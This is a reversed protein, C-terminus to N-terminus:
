ADKRQNLQPFFAEIPLIPDETAITFYNPIRRSNSSVTKFMGPKNYDKSAALTLDSVRKSHEFLHELHDQHKKDAIKMISSESRSRESTIDNKEYVTTETVSDQVSEGVESDKIKKRLPRRSSYVPTSSTTEITDELPPPRPRRQGNRIRPSIKVTTAEINETTTQRQRSPKFSHINKEIQENNETTSGIKHRPEKPTFKKRETTTENEIDSYPLRRQPLRVKPTNQTTKETTSTTSNLRSRYDKVNFKTRNFKNRLRPRQSREPTTTELRPTTTYETNEDKYLDTTMEKYFKTVSEFKAEIPKFDKHFSFDQESAITTRLTDSLSLAIDSTPTDKEDQKHTYDNKIDNTFKQLYPRNAIRMIPSEDHLEEQANPQTTTELRATVTTVPRRHALKKKVITPITPSVTPLASTTLDTTVTPTTLDQQYKTPRVRPGITYMEEVETIPIAETTSFTTSTFRTTTEPKTRNVNALQPRRRRIKNRKRVKDKENIIPLAPRRFHQDPPLTPLAEVEEVNNDKNSNFATTTAQTSSYKPAETPKKTRRSTSYNEYNPTSFKYYYDKLNHKGIPEFDDGLPRRSQSEIESDYSLSNDHSKEAETVIAFEEPLEPAPTIGPRGFTELFEDQKVSGETAKPYNYDYSNSTVSWPAPTAQTIYEPETTEVVEYSPRYSSQVNVLPTKTPTFQQNGAVLNDHIKHKKKEYNFNYNQQDQHHPVQYQAFSYDYYNNALTTSQVTPNYTTVKNFDSQLNKNNFPDQLSPQFGKINANPDIKPPVYLKTQQTPRINFDSYTSGFHIQNATTPGRPTSADLITPTTKYQPKYNFSNFLTQKTSQIPAFTTPFQHGPDRGKLSQIGFTGFSGLITPPLLADQYSYQSYPNGFNPLAQQQVTKVQQNVSQPAADNDLKFVEPKFTEITSAQPRKVENQRVFNDIPKGFVDLPKGTQYQGFQIPQINTLQQLMANQLYNNQKVKNPYKSFVPRDIYPNHPNRVLVSQAPFNQIFKFNHFGNNQVNFPNHYTNIPQNIVPVASPAPATRLTTPRYSQAISTLKTTDKTGQPRSSTQYADGVPIPIKYGPAHLPATGFPGYLLGGNGVVPRWGSKSPPLGGQTTGTSRRQNNGAGNTSLLLAQLTAAFVWLRMGNMKDACLTRFIFM